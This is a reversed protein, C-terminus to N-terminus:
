GAAHALGGLRARLVLGADPHGARSDAAVEDRRPEPLTRKRKTVLDRVTLGPRAVVTLANDRDGTLWVKVQGGLQGATTGPYYFDM